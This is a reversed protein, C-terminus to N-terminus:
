RVRRKLLANVATEWETFLMIKTGYMSRTLAGISESVGAQRLFQGVTIKAPKRERAKPTYLTDAATKSAAAPWGTVTGM